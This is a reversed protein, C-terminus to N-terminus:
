ADRTSYRRQALVDYQVRPVIGLFYVRYVGRLRRNRIGYIGNRGPRTMIYPFGSGPFARTGKVLQPAGTLDNEEHIVSSSPIKPTLTCNRLVFVHDIRWTHQAFMFLFM